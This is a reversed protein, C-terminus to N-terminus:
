CQKSRVLYYIELLFYHRMKWFYLWILVGQTDVQFKVWKSIARTLFLTLLVFADNLSWFYLVSIRCGLKCCGLYALYLLECVANFHWCSGVPIIFWGMLMLKGASSCLLRSNRLSIIWMFMLSWHPIDSDCPTFLSCDTHLLSNRCAFCNQWM